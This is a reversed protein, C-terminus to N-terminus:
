LKLAIFPDAAGWGVDKESHLTVIENGSLEETLHEKSLICLNPEQGEKGHIVSTRQLCFLLSHLHNQKNEVM